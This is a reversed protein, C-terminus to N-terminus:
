ALPHELSFWQGSTLLLCPLSPKSAKQQIEPEFDLWATHLVPKVSSSKDDAKSVSSDNGFPSFFNLRLQYLLDCDPWCWFLRKYNEGNCLPDCFLSKLHLYFEWQNVLDNGGQSMRLARGYVIRGPQRQPHRPFPPAPQPHCATQKGTCLNTKPKSYAAAAIVGGAAQLPILCAPM